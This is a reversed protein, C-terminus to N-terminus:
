GEVIARFRVADDLMHVNNFFVYAGAGEPLMSALDELEADEYQYRWGGRGHLRYYCRGPTATEDAFPDVVHWLDLEECLDAVLDRPWGGRPEWALQFGDRARSEVFARFDSLHRDTPLFSPPCQLLVIPSELARASAETEAWAAEVIETPRFAGAEAREEPTLVRRLRRYTPSSATHTVLQWAKVGFVFGPPAEDRWGALTKPRPPQYFTQQVEVAALREFYASRASSFGCCGIAVRAPLADPTPVAM